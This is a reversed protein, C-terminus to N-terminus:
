ELPAAEHAASRQAPAAAARMWEMPMRRRRIAGTLEEMALRMGMSAMSALGAYRNKVKWRLEAYTRAASHRPEVRAALGEIEVGQRMAERVHDLWDLAQDIENAIRRHMQTGILGHRLKFDNMKAMSAYTAKVIQERSMADTEYNLMFEWSPATLHRLHEELTTALRRLGFREPHEFGRSAPDLFPALPAVFYFVRKDGGCARYVEECFDISALASEPTQHPLGVMFFVDLKRCGHALAAKVTELFEANSCAFKGNLKRLDEDGSELTIELSYRPLHRELRQFFLEDAKWFLEFVIENRPKLAAVRELFEDTYRAGGQRIDGIVFIPTRSFRQIFAIDDALRAPSRLTPQSRACNLGYASRSGGCALCDQTCGRVTLLATLPYQLWGRYPIVDLLNRYRFVSRVAYRYDPINVDDLTEPLPGMPNVVVADCESSQQGARKWALNPVRSYDPEGSRMEDMLALMAKETTDGRMVFDVCDYGMLERHFYTASLGGLMVRAQPHARKVLKAIQLAGQAHPLWHLSIGFLESELGRIKQEVDFARDMLMRAALNVIKVRYGFRELYGGISTFGIPYMDFVSSSPIVDSIPGRFQNAKRFDYLSPPHLLVLDFKVCM